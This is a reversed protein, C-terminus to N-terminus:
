VIITGGDVHINQGTIWRGDNSVLAAVADAIDGPQGLRKMAALSAGVKRLMQADGGELMPTDTMGPSVINVTIGRPALERALVKAFAELAAKSGAYLAMGESNAVTIGSSINVIRGGDGICRAAERCMMFTGRANVAFLRDYDAMDINRFSKMHGIGANNIVVDIRGYRERAAAFLAQVEAEVRIDAQLACATGGAAVIGELTQQAGAASRAHAVVVRLGDRALRQCIARGIGSGGGSVIAVRREDAQAPDKDNM